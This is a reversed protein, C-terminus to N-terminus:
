LVFNNEWFNKTLGLPNFKRLLLEKDLKDHMVGNGLMETQQTM